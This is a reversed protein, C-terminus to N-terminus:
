LRGRNMHMKEMRHCWEGHTENPQRADGSITQKPLFHNIVEKLADISEEIGNWQPATPHELYIPLHKAEDEKLHFRIEKGNPIRVWALVYGGGFCLDGGSHRKSWGVTYGNTKEIVAMLSMMLFDRNKYVIDIDVENNM